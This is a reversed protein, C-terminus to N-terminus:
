KLGIKREREKIRLRRWDSKGRRIWTLAAATAASTFELL